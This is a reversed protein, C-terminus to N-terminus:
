ALADVQQLFRLKKEVPLFSAEFSNRAIERLQDRSFAFEAAALEYERGLSTQFMAPDDTNLTVMLGEEFFRKLPHEALGACVGTRLNSSLCIEVPVQKHALVEVLEPDRAISLGHGIREAGINLAAWVSEPGTTEGAHATLRLGQGAAKKYLDGFWEAPGRREDGGIGVGAVNRDRYTAALEFVEAAAEPGFHRVADFIWLLSIGFDRQGRERGREMGEFIPDFDQGRWRIVGVSVYVEAHMVNQQRLKQMLRYTILEYDEPTRLRETVSKFALMFGNFDKYSYLRRVDEETLVDGSGRVDYRNNETPLPTNHRRSLEAVTVPEVSGELHLHLEAKPLSQIFSRPM